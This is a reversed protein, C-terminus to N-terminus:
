PASPPPVAPLARKEGKVPWEFTIIAKHSEPTQPQGLVTISALTALPLAEEACSVFAAIQTYSGQGTFEVLQRGYLQEPPPKPVQLPIFRDEKVGNITFGTQKAIPDLLSKGRMAFSGLLPEIVGAAILADREAGVAAAKAQQKETGAIDQKMNAVTTKLGDNEARVALLRKRAPLIALFILALVILLCGGTILIAHRWHPNLNKLFPVETNM